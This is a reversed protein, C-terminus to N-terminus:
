IKLTPRHLKQEQLTLIQTNISNIGYFIITCINIWGSIVWCSSRWLVQSLLWSSQGGIKTEDQPPNSWDTLCRYCCTESLPYRLFVSSHQQFQVEKDWILVDWPNFTYNFMKSQFLLKWESLDFHATRPGEHLLSIVCTITVERKVLLVHLKLAPTIPIVCSISIASLAMCLFKHSIQYRIVNGWVSTFHNWVKTPNLEAQLWRQIWCWQIVNPQFRRAGMRGFLGPAADIHKWLNLVSVRTIQEVLM